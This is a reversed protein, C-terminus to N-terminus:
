IFDDARDLFLFKLSGQGGVPWERVDIIQDTDEWERVDIIQYTDEMHLRSISLPITVRYM